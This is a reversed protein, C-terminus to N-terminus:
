EVALLYHYVAQGGLQVEIEYDPFSEALEAAAAEAEDETVGEGYLLTILSTDDDFMQPLLKLMTEQVSAEVVAITGELLGLIDGEHIEQGDFQSDRVAYTIQGSHVLVAAQQMTEANEEASSEPDFNMMAAIGQTIFKSPVVVVPKDALQSAQNAAMVINSNNPLVVVQQATTNNIAQLIDEASPNMSQGGSGLTNVGMETFIQDLGSGSSVAVAGCLPLEVPELEEFVEAMAEAANDMVGALDAASAETVAEPEAKLEPQATQAQEKEAEDLLTERHQDKMNDIKLDHLSGFQLAYSLVAGPDATHIHTKVVTANGVIVQSEGMGQLHRRYAEVDIGQGHIFFETCYHNVLNQTGTAQQKTFDAKTEVQLPLEFEEGRLARLGGEFIAVLGSAGSDVVGAQKLVPLQNPTNALAQHGQALMLELLNELDMEANVAVAEGSAEAMKRAVTLITGEVPRMVSKYALEVGKQMARAFDVAGVQQCGDLGQAFGRLIQSLIVGSNGRAGLLAGHALREAAKPIDTQEPLEKVASSMTLGMNTGTDGDPVPFVNLANIQEKNATLNASAGVFFAIFESINLLKSM